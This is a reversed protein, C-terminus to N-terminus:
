DGGGLPDLREVLEGLYLHRDHDVKLVRFRIRDKWQLGAYDRLEGEYQEIGCRKLRLGEPSKVVTTVMIVGPETGARRTASPFLFPMEGSVPDCFSDLRLQQHPMVYPNTVAPRLLLVYDAPPDGSIRGDEARWTPSMWWAIEYVAVDYTGAAIPSRSAVDEAGALGYGHAVVTGSRVVLRLKDLVASAYDREDSSLEGDSIRVRYVGDGGVSFAVALGQRVAQMRAFDFEDEEVLDATVVEPDFAAISAADTMVTLIANMGAVYCPRISAALRRGSAGRGDQMGPCRPLSVSEM